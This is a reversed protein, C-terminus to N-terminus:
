TCTSFVMKGMTIFNRLKEHPVPGDSVEGRHARV